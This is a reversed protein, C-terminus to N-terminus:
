FINESIKFIEQAIANIQTSSLEGVFDRKPDLQQDSM